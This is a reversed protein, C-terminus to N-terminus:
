IMRLGKRSRRVEETKPKTRYAADGALVKKGKSCVNRGTSPVGKLSGRKKTEKRERKPRVVESRLRRGPTNVKKGDKPCDVGRPGGAKLGKGRKRQKIKGRREGPPRGDRIITVKEREAEKQNESLHVFTQWRGGRKKKKVRTSFIRKGERSVQCEDALKMTGEFGFRGEELREKGLRSPKHDCIVRFLIPSVGGGKKGELSRNVPRRTEL